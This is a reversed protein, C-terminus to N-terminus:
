ENFVFDYAFLGHGFFDFSFFMQPNAHNLNKIKM